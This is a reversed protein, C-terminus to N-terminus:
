ISLLSLVKNDLIKGIIKKIIIVRSGIEAM